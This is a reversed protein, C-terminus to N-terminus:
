AGMECQSGKQNCDWEESHQSTSRLKTDIASHSPINETADESDSISFSLLKSNLVLHDFGVWEVSRLCSPGQQPKGSAVLEWKPYLSWAMARLDQGGVWYGM